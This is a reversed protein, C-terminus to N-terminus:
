SFKIEHYREIRRDSKSIRCVTVITLIELDNKSYAIFLNLAHLAIVIKQTCSHDNWDDEKILDHTCVRTDVVLNGRHFNQLM